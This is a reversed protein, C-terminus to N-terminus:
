PCKFKSSDIKEVNELRQKGAIMDGEVAKRWVGNDKVRQGNTSVNTIGLPYETHLMDKIAQGNVVTNGAADVSRFDPRGAFGRKISWEEGKTYAEIEKNEWSMSAPQETHLVEHFVTEAAGECSTNASIVVKNGKASGGWEKSNSVWKGGRFIKDDFFVNAKTVKLKKAKEVVEKDQKCLIKLLCDMDWEDPKLPAQRVGSANVTNQKNHWMKDSLRCANKGELKVDMSYMIWTAEKIFVGSKVGGATGPEDGTSKVFMSPKNACMNGGDATVTTTGQVLDSSMAINPYPIPVPGAPTPTKCVDPVTAMTIGISGKHCLTLGAGGPNVMVTLGM